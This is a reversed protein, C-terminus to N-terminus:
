EVRLVRRVFSVGSVARTDSNTKISSKFAITEIPTIDRNEEHTTQTNYERQTFSSVDGLKGYQHSKVQAFFLGADLQDEWYESIGIYMWAERLTTSERVLAGTEKDFVSYPILIRVRERKYILENQKYTDIQPVQSRMVAYLEGKVKCPRELTSGTPRLAFATTEKGLKKKWLVFQKLTFGSAVNVSADSIISHQPHNYRMEDYIFFLHFEKTNLLAMDPTHEVEKAVNNVWVHDPYKKALGFM